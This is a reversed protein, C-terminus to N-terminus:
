KQLNYIQQVESAPLVRDFIMVEDILGKFHHVGPRMCGIRVPEAVNRIAPISSVTEYGFNMPCVVGNIFARMQHSPLTSDHQLAVFTWENRPIAKNAVVGSFYQTAADWFYASLTDDNGMMFEIGRRQQEPNGYSKTIIGFGESSSQPNIWAILTFDHSLQLGPFNGAEVFDDVGDFQLAAGVKGQPTWQAGHTEGQTGKGSKDTIRKGEDQDFPYYLVMGAKLRGPLGAGTNLRVKMSIIHEIGVSVKGFLTALEVPRLNLAGKLNDGNVMEVSVTEHDADIKVQLIQKLPIDMKAYSTQVSISSIAPIGIICSGDSLDLTVCTVENTKADDGFGMNALFAVACAALVCRFGNM